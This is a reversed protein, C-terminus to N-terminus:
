ALMVVELKAAPACLMVAWYLPSKLYEPLVDAGKDCVIRNAVDVDSDDPWFGDDFPPDTMKVAVTAFTGAPVGPGPPVTVKVSLPAATPDGTDNDPPAAVREIANEVAIDWKM